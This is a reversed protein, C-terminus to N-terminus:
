SRYGRWEDGGDQNWTSFMSPPVQYEEGNLTTHPYHISPPGRYMQPAIYRHQEPARGGGCDVAFSVNGDPYYTDRAMSPNALYNNASPLLYRSSDATSFPVHHLNTRTLQSMGTLDVSNRLSPSVYTNNGGFADSSGWMNWQSPTRDVMTKYPPQMESQGVGGYPVSSRMAFDNSCDTPCSIAPTRFLAHNIFSPASSFINNTTLPVDNLNTAARHPITSSGAVSSPCYSNFAVTRPPHNATTYGYSPDTPNSLPHPICLSNSDITNRGVRANQQSVGMLDFSNATAFPPLIGVTDRNRFPSRSAPKNADDMGVSMDTSSLDPLVRSLFDLERSGNSNSCDVRPSSSFRDLFSIGPETTFVNRRPLPCIIRMSFGEDTEGHSTEDNKPHLDQHEAYVYRPEIARGVDMRQRKNAIHTAAALETIDLMSTDEEQGMTCEAPAEALSFTSPSGLRSPSPTSELEGDSYELEESDSSEYEEIRDTGHPDASSLFFTLSNDMDHLPHQVGFILEPYGRERAYQKGDLTFNRSHLHDRVTDYKEEEWYTGIWGKMSLEPIGFRKWDVEAITNRGQPDYTWYFLNEPFPYRVCHANNVFETPLPRVFLYAPTSRSTPDNHFTGELRFGLQDIFIVDRVDESDDCFGLSQCLFACCLQFRDNESIRWGFDLPVNVDGTKEFLLDVRGPVSSSFNAKVNPTRSCCFWEPPPISPLHALIGHKNSDVVAGLTLLGHRAYDSLDTIWGDGESVILHLVDGFGEEVCATIEAINLRPLNEQRLPLPPYYFPELHEKNPPDLCLSAPDYQWSLTQLNFSWDEWRFAVPFRVTEDNRLSQVAISCTYNLYYYVIWEKEWYRGTFEFGNALEAAEDHAILTMVNSEVVAFVQKLLASRGRMAAELIAKMIENFSEWDKEAVPEFSTATFKGRYGYITATQEMRKVKVVQSETSTSAGAKINVSLIKSSLVRQFNIDGEIIRRVTREHLTVRDDRESNHYHTTMSNGLVTQFNAYDGVTTDRANSFYTSM